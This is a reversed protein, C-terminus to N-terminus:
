WLICREEPKRFMKSGPKCHFAEAFRDFNALSGNVRVSEPPHPQKRLTDAIADSQYNSCWMNAFSIFFLQEETFKEM